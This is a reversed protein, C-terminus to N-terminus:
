SWVVTEAEEQDGVDDKLGGDSVNGVAVVNCDGIENLNCRRCIVYDVQTCRGGSKYMVRHEEVKKFYM